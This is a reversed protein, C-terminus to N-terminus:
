MAVALSLGASVQEAQKEFTMRRPKSHPPKQPTDGTPAGRCRKGDKIPTEM